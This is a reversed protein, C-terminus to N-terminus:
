NPGLASEIGPAIAVGRKDRDPAWGTFYVVTPSGNGACRAYIGDGDVDVLEEVTAGRDVPRSTAPQQPAASVTVPSITSATTGDTVVAVPAGITTGSVSQANSDGSCGAAGLIGAGVLGLVLANRMAGRDGHRQFMPSADSPVASLNSKPLALTRGSTKRVEPM